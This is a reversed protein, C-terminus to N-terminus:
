KSEIRLTASWDAAPPRLALQKCRAAYFSSPGDDPDVALLRAFAEAGDEWRRESFAALGAAFERHRDRQESDADAERWCGLLEVISVARAKGALLFSGLPRFTFEDLGQVSEASALIRTGLVKNLGQIRSATNVIDGVARYEYHKSAGINGFLMDGSHLGFRTLLPPREGIGSANFEDLSRAIELTALCASRRVDIDSSTRAWVAVMSDGVVDAVVGKSREVPVFLHAYYENMLEGLRGPETQEALTTYKEADTSLCAGFLVRNGSTMPGLSRSLQDVVTRPLFFGFARKIGERERKTDRYNLWLGAFLALSSQVAVPIVSPLWISADAFRELVLWLYGACAAVVIMSAFIPRALRCVFGLALGWAAVISLQWGLGVPRVVRGDVLNAFATAAIEVGSLDLGNAESYVTRYDDRLRDQGAPTAAAYGIFVAKGRFTSDSTPGVPASGPARAAGMVDSYSVTAITRPPGYFNLYQSEPAEYLDILTHGLRTHQAPTATAPVGELRRAWQERQSRSPALRDFRAGADSPRAPDAFLDQFVDHGFLHFALVPLTPTLRTPDLFAWYTDVRSDKPLMFPASGHAAQELSEIPSARSEVVASTAASGPGQIRLTDRRISEALLVNGASRIAEAFEQDQEPRAGPSDFTLDFAVVKAGARALYRVLEAHLARPWASPREPLSLDRSSKEDIAVIVVDSPAAVPGRAAFLWQLGFNEELEEGVPTAAVLLGVLAVLVGLLVANSARAMSETNWLPLLPM